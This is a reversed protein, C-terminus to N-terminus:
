QLFFNNVIIAENILKITVNMANQLNTTRVCLAEQHLFVCLHLYVYVYVYFICIFTIYM